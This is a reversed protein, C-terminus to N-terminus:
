RKWSVIDADYGEGGDAGDAGYSQITFPLGKKGPAEYRFPRGWPDAAIEGDVYPGAWGAPVPSLAPKEWLAALGQERSPYSGCELYYSELALKYAAIQNRASAVRAAEVYKTASFGVGASLILIIAIVMITEIFTFGEDNAEKL